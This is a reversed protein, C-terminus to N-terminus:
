LVPVVTLAFSRSKAKLRVSLILIAESIIRVFANMLAPLTEVSLTRVARTIRVSTLTSVVPFVIVRELIAKLVPVSLTAMPTWNVNRTNGVFCSIALTNVYSESSLPRVSVSTTRVFPMERVALIQMASLKLLVAPSPSAMVELLVGVVSAESLTPVSPQSVVSETRDLCKHVSMSILANTEQTELSDRPVRVSTVAWLTPVFQITAASDTLDSDETANMLTKAIVSRIALLDQSVIATIVELFTQASLERVV